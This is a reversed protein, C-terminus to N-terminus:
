NRHMGQALANRQALTEFDLRTLADVTKWRSYMYIYGALSFYWCESSTSKVRYAEPLAVKQVLAEELAISNRQAFEWWQAQNKVVPFSVAKRTEQWLYIAVACGTTLIFEKTSSM